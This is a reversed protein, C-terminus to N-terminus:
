FLSLQYNIDSKQKADILIDNEEIHGILLPSLSDHLSFNHKVLDNSYNAYCYLCGHLCSNYVGIDNGILCTCGERISKPKLLLEEGIVKEIVNKSMCGNTNIGYQKFDDGEACTYLQMGYRRAIISFEKAIMHKDRHSVQKVDPFNKITKQYLDIFSIVCQNTYNSLERAIYEFAKKHFDLSYKPSIFIPDYRWGVAHKGVKLSLVKFTEIVEKVYPVYPEIDKSYPTITVFWFQRYEKLEDLRALMPKPNKSCFCLCDVVRPNLVYKTVRQPFYPNRVYVYGEKIRNFFWESYYAPIDTRQGTNIIMIMGEKM